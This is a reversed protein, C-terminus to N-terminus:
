SILFWNLNEIPAILYFYFFLKKKKSNALQLKALLTESIFERNLLFNMMCPYCFTSFNDAFNHKWLV